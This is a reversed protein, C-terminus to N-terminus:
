LSGVDTKVQDLDKYAEGYLDKDPKYIWHELKFGKPFSVLGSMMASKTIKYNILDDVTALAMTFKRITMDYIEEFRYNTAVSLCVIKKEITAHVDNQQAELKMRAEYDKKVADDVWSDDQYDPFNQYMVIQRLRNFDKNKIPQGNVLLFPKKTNEDTVIKIMELFEGSEDGCHPCKNSTKGRSLEFVLIKERHCCPFPIIGKLRQAIIGYLTVM